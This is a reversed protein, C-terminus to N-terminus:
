EADEDRRFVTVPTFPSYLENITEVNLVITYSGEPREAEAYFADDFDQKWTVSLIDELDDSAYSETIGFVTELTGYVSTCIDTDEIEDKSYRPFGLYFEQNDAKLVVGGDFVGSEELTEYQGSLDGYTQGIPNITEFFEWGQDAPAESQDAPADASCSALVISAALILALTLLRVPLGRTGTAATMIGNLLETNGAAQTKKGALMIEGM